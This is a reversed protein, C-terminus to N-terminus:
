VKKMITYGVFSLQSKNERTVIYKTKIQNGKNKNQSNQNPNNIDILRM